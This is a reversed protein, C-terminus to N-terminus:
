NCLSELSQSLDAILDDTDELGINLRVLKGNENWRERLDELFYPLALSHSGGWSYGIKFLRLNNVFNDIQPQSFSDNFIISFLDGAGDFDKKWNKHGPCDEFAPHLVKKIEKRKKLWKAIKRASRDHAKFRLNMTNLGRLVLYVDYGSVGMGLKLHALDIKQYLSKDRTIIAGMLIDSGGSQYKTLAQLVIDIGLDFAQLGIGASWTNDLVVLVGKEKASKCISRLDPVEMSVSGPTETWILKTNSQILSSIKEGIMCDYYKVSINFKENLWRALEKNPNYINDPLLIGDGARLLGFNVLVIAALGSPALLCYNGGEIEALKAELTFTTPTGHLGYTYSKKDQWSSSRLEEVTKFIVTSAQHIPTPFSEFGEPPRYKNHNLLTSIKKKMNRM